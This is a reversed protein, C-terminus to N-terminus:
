TLRAPQNDVSVHLWDTSRQTKHAVIKEIKGDQHLGRCMELITAFSRTLARKDLFFTDFDRAGRFISSRVCLFPEAGAATAPSLTAIRKLPVLVLSRTNM